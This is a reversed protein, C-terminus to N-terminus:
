SAGIEETESSAGSLAPRGISHYDFNERLMEDPKYVNRMDIMVPNKLRSKVEDFNLMRFEDWETLLVLADAGNMAAYTDEAWEVGPLLPKAEAMGEPDYAQIAAGAAQLAPVIDLSPAERMDDTNPKFTVGLIAITKGSVSGCM